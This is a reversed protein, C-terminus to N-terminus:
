PTRRPDCPAGRRRGTLLSRSPGRGTSPRRSPRRAVRLPWQFDTSHGSPTAPTVAGLRWLAVWPGLTVMRTRRSVDPSAAYDGGQEWLSWRNVWLSMRPRRPTGWGAGAHVDTSGSHCRALRGRGVGPTGSHGGTDGHWATEIARLISASHGDVVRTGLPRSHGDVFRTVLSEPTVM